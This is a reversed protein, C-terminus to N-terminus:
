DVLILKMNGFSVTLNIKSNRTSLLINPSNIQVSLSYEFALTVLRKLGLWSIINLLILYVLTGKVVAYFFSLHDNTRKFSEERFM